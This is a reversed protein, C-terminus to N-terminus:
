KFLSLCMETFTKIHQTYIITKMTVNGCHIGSSSSGNSSNGDSSNSSSNNNNSSTSNWHQKLQMESVGSVCLTDTQSMKRKHRLDICSCCFFLPSIYYVTVDYVNVFRLYYILIMNLTLFILQLNTQKLQLEYIWIYHFLIYIRMLFFPFHSLRLYFVSPSIEHLLNCSSTATM